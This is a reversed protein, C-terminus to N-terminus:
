CSSLWYWRFAPGSLFPPEPCQGSSNLSPTGRGAAGKTCVPCLWRKLVALGQPDGTLLPGGGGRQRDTFLHSNTFRSLTFSDTSTPATPRLDPWPQTQRAPEWSLNSVSSPWPLHEPPFLLSLLCTVMQGVWLIRHTGKDVLGKGPVPAAASFAM